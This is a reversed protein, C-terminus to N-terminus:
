VAFGFWLGLLAAGLVDLVIGYRIMERQSVYGTAYAMANTPTSVPLMFGFTCAVTAALAPMVPDGGLEKSVAMVIPIVMNASATNSTCESVAIAFISFAFIRTVGEGAPVYAAFAQGMATAFGSQNMLDGLCMGGGFLLITAWDITGLDTLNLIAERKGNGSAAPAFFWFLPASALIPVIGEPLHKEILKGLEPSALTVVPPFLWLSFAAFLMATTWKQGATWPGLDRYRGAMQARDYVLSRAEKRTRLIMYLMMLLLSLFTIPLVKVVWELFSIKYGTSQEILGIGILNPPTGIPTFLGGLSAAYAILLMLGGAYGKPFVDKGASAPIMALLVSQAIPLMMAVTATNSIWASLFATTLGLFLFARVPDNKLIELSLVRYAIRENLRHKFTAHGLLFSGIFLPIIPNALAGFAKAAPAVGVLVALAPGLLATAALPIAESLWLTVVIALVAALRRGEEPIGDLPFLYAFAALVLAIPLAFM